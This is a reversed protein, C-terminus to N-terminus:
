RTLRYQIRPQTRIRDGFGTTAQSPFYRWNAKGLILLREPKLTNAVEIFAAVNKKGLRVREAVPVKPGELVNQQYNYFAVANWFNEGTTGCNFSRREIVSSLRSMPLLLM